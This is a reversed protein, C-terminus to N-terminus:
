LFLCTQQGKKLAQPISVARGRLFRQVTEESNRAHIGESTVAPLVSMNVKQSFIIEGGAGRSERERGRERQRVGGPFFSM